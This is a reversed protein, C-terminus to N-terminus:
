AYWFGVRGKAREFADALENGEYIRLAQVLLDDAEGHCGESDGHAPMADLIDIAEQICKISM